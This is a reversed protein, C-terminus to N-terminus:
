PTKPFKKKLHIIVSALIIPKNSIAFVNMWLILVVHNNQQMEVWVKFLCYWLTIFQRKGEVPHLEFM